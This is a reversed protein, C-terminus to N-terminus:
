KTLYAEISEKATVISASITQNSLNIYIALQVQRDYLDRTLYEFLYSEETQHHSVFQVQDYPTNKLIFERAM